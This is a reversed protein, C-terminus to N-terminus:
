GRPRVSPGSAPKTRELSGMRHRAASRNGPTDARPPEAVLKELAPRYGNAKYEACSITIHRPGYAVIVSGDQLVYRGTAM